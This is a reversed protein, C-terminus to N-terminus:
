GETYPTVGLEEASSIEFRIEEGSGSTGGLLRATQIMGDSPDLGIVHQFHPALARAATGPGCGIDLLATLQGGTSTHHSLITKYLTPHYNKRNQAYNTGQSQTFKTFTKETVSPPNSQSM